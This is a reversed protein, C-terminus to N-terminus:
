TNKPHTLFVSNEELGGAITRSLTNLIILSPSYNGTGARLLHNYTGAGVLFPGHFAGALLLPSCNWARRFVSSLNGCGRAVICM